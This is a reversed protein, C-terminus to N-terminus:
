GSRNLSVLTRIKNKNKIPVYFCRGIAEESSSLPYTNLYLTSLSILDAGHKM